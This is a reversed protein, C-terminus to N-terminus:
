KSCIKRGANEPFNNIRCDRLTILISLYQQDYCLVRMFLALTDRVIIELKKQTCMIHYDDHSLLVDPFRCPIFCFFTFYIHYSQIM